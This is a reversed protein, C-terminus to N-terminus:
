SETVKAPRTTANFMEVLVDLDVVQEASFFQKLAAFDADTVNDPESTLKDAFHLGAQEAPSFQAYDGAQLAEWEASDM